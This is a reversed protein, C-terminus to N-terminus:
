PRVARFFEHDGRAETASRLRLVPEPRRWSQLALQMQFAEAQGAVRAKDELALHWDVTASLQAQRLYEFM